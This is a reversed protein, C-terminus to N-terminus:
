NYVPGGYVETSSGGGSSGSGTQGSEYAELARNYQQELVTKNENILDIYERYLPNTNADINSILQEELLDRDVYQYKTMDFDDGLNPDQVM